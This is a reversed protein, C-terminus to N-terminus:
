RGVIRRSPRAALAEAEYRSITAHLEVDEEDAARRADEFAQMGQEFDGCRVLEYAVDVLFEVAEPHDALLRNLRDRAVHLQRVAEACRGMERLAVALKARSLPIAALEAEHLDTRREQVELYREWAAVAEPYRQMEHLNQGILALVSALQVPEAAFTTQLVEYAQEANRLSERHNDRRNELEAIAVHTEIVLAHRAGFATQHIQLARDLDQRAGDFDGALRKSWGLNSLSTGVWPHHPGLQREFIALAKADLAVAEDIRDDGSAVNALRRLTEAVLVHEPGLM